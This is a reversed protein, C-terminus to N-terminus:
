SKIGSDTGDLRNQQYVRLASLPSQFCGYTQVRLQIWGAGLFFGWVCVCVGGEYLLLMELGQPKAACVRLFVFFFLESATEFVM